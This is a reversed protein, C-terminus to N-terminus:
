ADTSPATSPAVQGGNGVDALDGIQVTTQRMASIRSSKMYDAMSTLGMRRNKSPSDVLISRIEAVAEEATGYNGRGAKLREDTACVKNQPKLISRPPASERRRRQEHFTTVPLPSDSRPGPSQVTVKRVLTTQPNHATTVYGSDPRLNLQESSQSNSVKIASDNDSSPSALPLEQKSLQEQVWHQEQEMYTSTEQLLISLDHIQQLSSSVDGVKSLQSEVFDLKSRVDVLDRITQVTESSPEVFETQSASEMHVVTVKQQGMDMTSALYDKLNTALQSIMNNQNSFKTDIQELLVAHKSQAFEQLEKQVDRLKEDDYPPKKSEDLINAVGVAIHSDDAVASCINELHSNTAELRSSIDKHSVSLLSLHDMIQTQASEQKSIRGSLGVAGNHIEGQLKTFGIAVAETLSKLM